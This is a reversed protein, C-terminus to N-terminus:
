GSGLGFKAIRNRLTNRSIGLLKAARVQNGGTKHLAAEILLREMEPILELGPEKSALALLAEAMESLDRDSAQQRAADEGTLFSFDEIRLVQGPCLVAAREVANQLERVNGPWPQVCLFEKAEETIGEIPQAAGRNYRRIFYDVLEPIDTRRENLPPIRIQVVRLRYFLDERFKGAAVLTDLDQNTAAILRVDVSITKTGGVREFSREQLVRLIKTQMLLPMDGIEDLFLTGGDCREFRGLRTDYAGTFAGRESGFLESELLEGPLAACNVAQFPKDRRHSYNFIARAVLEKGSGSPGTILVTSDSRSVKGVLKYVEQMAPSSGIIRAAGSGDRPESPLRVIDRVLRSDEVASAVIRKLEGVDFPKLVYEYAGLRMAEIATETTGFATAIIVPLKAHDAHIRAFTELGSMGPMRIDMVVADYSISNIKKMATPGDPAEDVEYGEKRM